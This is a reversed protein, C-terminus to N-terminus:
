NGNGNSPIRIINYYDSQTNIATNALDDCLENYKNGAHGKIWQFVPHIENALSFMQKWLDLNIIPAGGHKKGRKSIFEKSRKWGRKEWKFMWENAGKVVYQSDSFIIIPIHLGPWKQKVKELARIVSIMEMRNNTVMESYGASHIEKKGNEFRVIFSWGGKADKSGNNICAGDTYIIIQFQKFINDM